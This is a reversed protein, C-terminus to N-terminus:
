RLRREQRLILTWTECGYWVVPFFIIRYIKIKLNKLLFSSALLNQVSHYCGNM